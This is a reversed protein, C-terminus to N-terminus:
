SLVEPEEPHPRYFLLVNGLIQALQAGTEEHLRKAIPRVSDADHVKVKILEHALLQNEFNEILGESIGRQGVLVVPHLDHALSQLRHREDSDLAPSMQKVFESRTPEEIDM